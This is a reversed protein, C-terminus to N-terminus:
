SISDVERLHLNIEDDEDDDDDEDDEDDNDNDESDSDNQYVPMKNKFIMFLDPHDKNNILNMINHYTSVVNPTRCMPCNTKQQICCKDRCVFCIFHGCSTTDTTNELCICCVENISYPLIHEELKMDNYDNPGVLDGNIVRYSNYIKQIRLVAKKICSYTSHYLVYPFLTDQGNYPFHCKVNISEITIVNYKFYFVIYCYVGDICVPRFHYEKTGRDKQKKIAEVLADISCTKIEPRPINLPNEEKASIDMNVFSHILTTIDGSIDM